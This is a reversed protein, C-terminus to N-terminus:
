VQSSEDSFWKSAVKISDDTHAGDLFWTIKGDQKKECRGRIIMTELGKVFEEPLCKASDEIGEGLNIKQLAVEALAIALSANSKQFVADPKIQVGVLRPDQELITLSKVKREDARAKIVEIAETPQTVTFSAVGLKQIGAKNWAIKDITDGLTFTHDIGLASIGTVAPTDAINTSDYEGGVGVEYIAVDVNEQIFAHYSMLTLYRFYV